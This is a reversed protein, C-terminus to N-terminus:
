QAVESFYVDAPMGPKLDGSENEVRIKIAFVLNVREEQTAVNRPTFEASDSIHVIEGKFVRDPFSDVSVEVAQGLQVRGIQNEAVYVDLSIRNLDAITLLTAGQAAVEGPHSVISVVTGDLPSRIELMDRQTELADVITQAQEVRAELASIQEPSAGAQLASLQAQAMAIQAETEGLASKAQDLKVNLTQPNQAQKYLQYLNRQIGEQEALAYNVGVWAQWWQNPSLSMGMPINVNYTKYLSFSGNEVNLKYGDIEYEGDTLNPPLQIVGPPVQQALQDLSGSAIEFKQRGGGNFKDNVEDFKDKVLEIGDKLATAKAVKHEASEAQVQAVAIQLRVDQPNEVLALTDSVAQVGAIQAAEAQELQAGAIAVKGPRVGAQAQALAAEAVAVQANAAEIQADIMSTDLQVVLDDKGAWDGEDVLVSVIRGGLESSLDVEDAQIVGTASLREVEQEVPEGLLVLAKTQLGPPLKEALTKAGEKVPQGSGHMVLYFVLAGLALGLLVAYIRKFRLPKKTEKEDM